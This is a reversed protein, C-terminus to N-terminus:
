SAESLWSIPVTLDSGSIGAGLCRVRESPMLSLLRQRKDGTIDGGQASVGWVQFDFADPNHTLFQHLLPVERSLWEDPLLDEDSVVDWASVLVALKRRRTFFPASQLIQLLDVLQAQQPVMEHKWEVSADATGQAVGGDPADLLEPGLDAITLGDTPKNASIFLLIGGEKSFGDVYDNRAQRLVFQREFSEGSLDPFNLVVKQDHKVLRAHIKVNTEAGMSTRTVPKCERWATAIQNLYRQDGELHDLVFKTEVEGAEIMHWLAALFTTKGSFPLGIISHYLEM